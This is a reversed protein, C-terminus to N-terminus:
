SIFCDIFNDVHFRFTAARTVASFLAPASILRSGFFATFDGREEAATDSPFASLLRFLARERTFQRTLRAPPSYAAATIM